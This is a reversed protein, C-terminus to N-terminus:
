FSTNILSLWGDDNYSAVHIYKDDRITKLNGNASINNRAKFIKCETKAKKLHKENIVYYVGEKEIEFDAGLFGAKALQVRFAGIEIRDSKTFNGGFECHYPIKTLYEPPMKNILSRFDYPNFKAHQAVKWATLATVSGAASFGTEHINLYSDRVLTEGPKDFKFLPPHNGSAAKPIYKMAHFEKPANGTRYADWVEDISAQIALNIQRRNDINRPSFYSYDGYAIWEAHENKVKLGYYGDEDHMANASFGATTQTKSADFLERRPTRIHGSSFLDTLYHLAFADM